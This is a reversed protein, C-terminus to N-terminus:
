GRSNSNRDNANRSKLRDAFPDLSFIISVQIANPTV